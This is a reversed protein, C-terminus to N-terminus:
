DTETVMEDKDFDDMTSPIKCGKGSAVLINEKKILYNENQRAEGEGGKQTTRDM